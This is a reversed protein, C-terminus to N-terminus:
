NHFRLRRQNRRRRAQPSYEDFWLDQMLLSTGDSKIAHSKLDDHILDLETIDFESLEFLEGEDLILNSNKDMWLYFGKLEDGSLKNDCNQDYTALKAYGDTYKGGMDGMMHDGTIVGNEFDEEGAEVHADVLIGETPAFWQALREKDDDGTVDIEFGGARTIMEISGSGDLDIAIPSYKCSNWEGPGNRGVYRFKFGQGGLDEQEKYLFDYEQENL